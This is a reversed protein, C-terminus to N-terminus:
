AHRKRLQKNWVMMNMADPSVPGGKRFPPADMGEEPGEQMAAGIAAPPAMQYLPQGKEMVSARFEPTIDISHMPQTGLEAAAREAEERTAHRSVIGSGGEPVVSFPNENADEYIQFKKGDIPTSHLNMRLGTKEGYKNVFAPLMQDYFGEMGERKSLKYRKAQEVGPTIVVKDYGNRAADDLLRKMVLEHWDKKFPADPVGGHTKPMSEQNTLRTYEEAEEPSLRGESKLKSDLNNLRNLDVYGEERGKQHWDSQVEEIHLMKEGNPGVRDSVRAHALTGKPYHSGEYEGGPLKILIERYNKGGPITLTPEVDPGYSAEGEALNWLRNKADLRTEYPGDVTKGTTKDIVFFEDPMEVYRNGVKMYTYPYYAIELDSEPRGGKLVDEGIQTPPNEAAIREVDAKTMKGKLLKDLGRDKIEQPKVGPTKKIMGLFQEGTGKSQTIEAIAKDVASYFPKAGSAAEGAGRVLSRLKLLDLPGAM